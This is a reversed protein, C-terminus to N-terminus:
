QEALIDTALKVLDNTAPIKGYAMTRDPTTLYVQDTNSDYYILNDLKALTTWSHLDLCLGSDSGCNLYLRNNTLDEFVQLTSGYANSLQDRYVQTGTAVEYILLHGGAAKIALYADDLFFQMQLVSGSPLQTPFRGVTNGTELDLIRVVGNQDVGAMLPNERAFTISSADSFVADSRFSTWTDAHTNYVCINELPISQQYDHLTVLVYGNAGVKM